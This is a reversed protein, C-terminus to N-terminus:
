RSNLTALNGSLKWLRDQKGPKLGLLKTSKELSGMLVLPKSSNIQGIAMVVEEETPPVDLSDLVERQPILDLANPRSHLAQEALHQFAREM